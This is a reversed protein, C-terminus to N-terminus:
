DFSMKQERIQNKFAIIIILMKQTYGHMDPVPCFDKCNKNSNNIM